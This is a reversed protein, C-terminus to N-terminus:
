PGQGKVALPRDCLEILIEEGMMSPSPPLPAQPVALFHESLTRLPIPIPSPSTSSLNAFNTIPSWPDSISRTGVLPAPPILLPQTPNTAENFPPTTPSSTGVRTSEPSLPMTMMRNLIPQSSHPSSIQPFSLCTTLNQNSNQMSKISSTGRFEALLEPAHLDDVNVWSDHTPSYGKWRVLYQKKKWRGYTRAKIIQEVKWEEEGEIIDPPPEIFNPGHQNTEKYPTLLSTHFINYIKWTPPLSLKYAVNSIKAAVM